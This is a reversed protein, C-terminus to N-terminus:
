FRLQVGLVPGTYDYDIAFRVDSDLYDVDVDFMQYHAFFAVNKFTNWQIGVNANAIQGSIEEDAGLDVEVALWGFRSVFLWKDNFAYNFGINLTPLPATSALTSNLIEGPDPSSETGQIGFALDQISLGLGISLEKKEDLLLSYSYAIENATIDFFSQIPLSVDFTQDGIKILVSSTTTASRDLQFYRYELSHKKAFRWSLYLLGTAKNDDLGLSDEFSIGTGIIGDADTVVITTNLDPVFYGLGADFRSATPWSQWDDSSQAHSSMSVALVIPLFALHLKKM